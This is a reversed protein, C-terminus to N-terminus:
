RDGVRAQDGAGRRLLLPGDPRRQVWHQLDEHIALSGAGVTLERDWFSTYGDSFANAWVLAAVAAVMLAVGGTAEDHLFETLPDVARQVRRKAGHARSM